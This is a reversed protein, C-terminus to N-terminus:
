MVVNQTEIELKRSVLFSMESATSASVELGLDTFVGGALHHSWGRKPWRTKAEKWVRPLRLLLADAIAPPKFEAVPPQLCLALSLPPFFFFNRSM